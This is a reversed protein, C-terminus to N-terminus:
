MNLINEIFDQSMTQIKLLSNQKKLDEKSQFMEKEIIGKNDLTICIDQWAFVEPLIEIQLQMICMCYDYNTTNMKFM